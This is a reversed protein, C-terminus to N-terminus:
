LEDLKIKKTLDFLAKFGAMIGLILGFIKLYPSTGLKGDLWLGGAYGVMTAIVIELGIAGVRGAIKLQKRQEPELLMNGEARQAPAMYCPPGLPDLISWM